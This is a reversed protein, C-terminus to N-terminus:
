GAVEARVGCRCVTAVLGLCRCRGGARSLAATRGASVVFAATAACRDPDRFRAAFSCAFPQEGSCEEEVEGIVVVGFLCVLSRRVHAPLWTCSSSSPLSGNLPERTIVRLYVIGAGVELVRGLLGTLSGRRLVRVAPQTPRLSPSSTPSSHTTSKQQRLRQLQRCARSEELLRHAM